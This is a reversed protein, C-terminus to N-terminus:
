AWKEDMVKENYLTELHKALVLAYPNDWRCIQGIAKKVMQYTEGDPKKSEISKAVAAYAKLVPEKQIKVWEEDIKGLLANAFNIRDNACKPIEQLAKESPQLKHWAAYPFIIRVHEECVKDSGTLWALAKSYRQLAKAARVSLENRTYVSPHSNFHSESADNDAFANGKTMRSINDSALESFRISALIFNVYADITDVKPMNLMEKRIQIFDNEDLRLSDPIDLLGNLSGNLKEDQRSYIMELDWPQPSTVIAAVDFRDLAPPPIEFTGSDSYNATAFLPGKSATLLEDGYVAVGTDILRLIISIKDPDLRNIEDILKVKCKLFNRVLVKEEGDKILKGTHYRATMKEETQQPHGQITAQLIEEIPIGTFFHGAFEAGTTKGIGPAGTILMTGHSLLSTLSALLLPSSYARGGKGLLHFSYNSATGAQIKDHPGIFMDHSTNVYLGREGILSYIGHVKDQLTKMSASILLINIIKETIYSNKPLLNGFAFHHAKQIKCLVFQM